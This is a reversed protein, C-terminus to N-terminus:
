KAFVQKSPRRTRLLRERSGAWCRQFSCSFADAKDGPSCLPAMTSSQHGSLPLSKGPTGLGDYFQSQSYLTLHLTLVRGVKGRSGGWSGVLCLWQVSTTPLTTSVKRAGEELQRLAPRGSLPLLDVVSDAMTLHSSSHPGATELLLSSSGLWCTSDSSWPAAGPWAPPM